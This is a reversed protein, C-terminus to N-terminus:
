IEGNFTLDLKDKSKVEKVDLSNITKMRTKIEPVALDLIEQYSKEPNNLEIQEIVSKTTIPDTKFEPYTEFFTKSLKNTIAHNQMLNGVVEPLKLLVKETVQFVIDNMQKENLEM